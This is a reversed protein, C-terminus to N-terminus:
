RAAQDAEEAVVEAVRQFPERGDGDVVLSQREQAEGQVVPHDGPVAPGTVGPEAAPCEVAVRPAERSPEVVDVGPQRAARERPRGAIPVGLLRGIDGAPRREREARLQRTGRVLGADLRTRSCMARPSM